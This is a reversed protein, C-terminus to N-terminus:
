HGEDKKYYCFKIIDKMQEMLGTNLMQFYCMTLGKTIATLCIIKCNDKIVEMDNDCNYTINQVIEKFDCM